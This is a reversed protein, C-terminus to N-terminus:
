AGLGERIDKLLAAADRRLDVADKTWGGHRYSGNREGSPAGSGRAGGHLRCVRKGRVAPGQCRKGTTRAHAHCRLANSLWEPRKRKSKAETEPHGGQLNTSAEITM